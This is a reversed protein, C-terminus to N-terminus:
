VKEKKESPLDESLEPFKEQMYFHLYWCPRPVFHEGGRVTQDLAMHDPHRFGAYPRTVTYSM